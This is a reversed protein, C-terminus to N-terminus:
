EDEETEWDDEDREATVLPYRDSMAMFMEAMQIIDWCDHSGRKLRKPHFGCTTILADADGIRLLHDLIGQRGRRPQVGCAPYKVSWRSPTTVIGRPATHPSCEVSLRLRTLPQSDMGQKRLTEVLETVRALAPISGACGLHSVDSFLKSVMEAPQVDIPLGFEIFRTELDEIM